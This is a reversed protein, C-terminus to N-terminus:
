IKHENVRLRYFRVLREQSVGLKYLSFIVFFLMQLRFIGNREYKRASTTVCGDLVRFNCLRRIRGIIEQDEMVIMDAKFGGAQVFVKRCVFLSQDGFRFINWNFRTFWCSLRLFWHKRDFALRYCGSRWHGEVAKAIDDAYSAPPFSDAHLFYLIDGRTECAGMNMQIARGKQPSHVVRAGAKEAIEVTKDTSGGDVVLVELINSNAGTEILYRVLRGINDEENLCPVVVSIKRGTSGSCGKSM